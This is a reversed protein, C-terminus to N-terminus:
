KGVSQFLGDIVRPGAPISEILENGINLLFFMGWNLAVFGFLWIALKQTPRAPFMNIYVRRPYQLIFDFTEKWVAHNEETTSYRLVRSLVWVICRLFIPSAQSGVLLLMTGVILVFYYGSQFATAGADILLLGTNSFCSVAMFIGSWWANQSNVAPIEPSHVAIWSGLAIAGLLQWLVFYLAVIVILVEIARYEVGGLYEREKLTLNFFGGNRSVNKRKEDLFNRVAVSREKDPDADTRNESAEPRPPEVFAVSRASKIPALDEPIPALAEVDRDQTPSEAQAAPAQSPIRSGLGPIQTTTVGKSKTKAL